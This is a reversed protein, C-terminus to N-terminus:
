RHSFLKLRLAIIFKRLSRVIKPEGSWIIYRRFRRPIHIRINQKRNIRHVVSRIEYPRGHLIKATGRLVTPYPLRVNYAQPLPAIRANSNYTAVRLSPQDQGLKMEDYKKLWDQLLALSEESRRFALVGAGWRPYAAPIQHLKDAGIFVQYRPEIAMAMDFRDLLAFIESVPGTLFTDTDLALTRDFPSTALASIRQRNTSGIGNPSLVTDFLSRDVDGDTTIAIPIGGMQRRVTAASVEAEQIFAKGLAFYAIGRYM